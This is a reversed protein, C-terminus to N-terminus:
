SSSSSNVIFRMVNMNSESFEFNEWCIWLTKRLLNLTKEGYEFFHKEGFEFAGQLFAVQPACVGAAGPVRKLLYTCQIFIWIIGDDGYWLHELIQKLNDDAYDYHADGNHLSWTPIVMM